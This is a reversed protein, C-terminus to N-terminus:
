GTTGGAERRSGIIGRMAFAAWCGAYVGVPLMALAAVLYYFMMRVSDGFDRHMVYIEAIALPIILLMASITGPVIRRKYLSMGCHGVANVLLAFVVVKAAVTLRGPGTLYEMVGIGIVVASFIIIVIRFVERDKRRASLRKHYVQIWEEYGRWEEINHVVTALALMLMLAGFTM